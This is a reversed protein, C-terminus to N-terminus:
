KGGGFCGIKRPSELFSLPDVRKQLEYIEDKAIDLRESLTDIRQNILNMTEQLSNILGILKSIHEANTNNALQELTM